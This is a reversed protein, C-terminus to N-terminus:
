MRWPLKMGNTIWVPPISPNSKLSLFLLPVLLNSQARVKPSETRHSKLYTANTTTSNLLKPPVMSNLQSNNNNNNKIPPLAHSNIELSCTEETQDRLQTGPGTDISFKSELLRHQPPSHLGDINFLPTAADGGQAAERADQTYVPLRYIKSEWLNHLISNNMFNKLSPYYRPNSGEKLTSEILLENM